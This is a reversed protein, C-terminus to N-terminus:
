AFASRPRQVFEIPVGDPDSLFCIWMDPVTTGRLEVEMPARDFVVGAASLQEFAVRTDDVGLAARFLGAHNPETYHRGHSPPSTWETLILECAEDPLQLRAFRGEAAAPGGAFSAEDVVGQYVVSFGLTRYFALSADLDCCTVRLHRLRTTGRALGADSVLELSVGTVDTVVLADDTWPARGRYLTTCGTASLRQEAEDLDPVCFGLAKMGAEFPDASPVGTLPPEVWCHVEIAPSVRPGRADYVFSAWGQIKGDMGLLAGPTPEDPTRMVNRMAFADVFFDTVADADSCCYCLHLFRRAPGGPDPGNM